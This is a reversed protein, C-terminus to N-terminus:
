DDDPDNMCSSCGLVTKEDEDLYIMCSESWWGCHPCREINLDLLLDVVEDGDIDLGLGQGSLQFESDATGDAALKLLDSLLARERGQPLPCEVLPPEGYPPTGALLDGVRLDLAAALDYIEKPQLAREGAEFGLFDNESLEVREALEPVGLGLEVRRTRAATAVEAWSREFFCTTDVGGRYDREPAEVAVM